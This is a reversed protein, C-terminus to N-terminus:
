QVGVLRGNEIKLGKSDFHNKIQPLNIASKLCLDYFKEWAGKKATIQWADIGFRTPSPFVEKEELVVGNIIRRPKEKVKFVVYTYPISLRNKDKGLYQGYIANEGIRCICKHWDGQSQLSQKLKKYEVNSM